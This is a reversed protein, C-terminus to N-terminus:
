RFDEVQVLGTTIESYIKKWERADHLILTFEDCTGNPYFRASVQEADKYETLNVDLMEIMVENSLQASLGSGSSAPASAQTHAVDAASPPQNGARRGAPPRAPASVAGGGGVTLRGARPYFIVDVEHGQLIARARANSCVETVDRIAQAMPARHWIKYVIPVSMTLIVGMIGVVVMIEILTFARAPQSSHVTFRSNM